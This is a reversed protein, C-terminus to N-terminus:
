WLRSNRPTCAAPLRTEAELDTDELRRRHEGGGSDLRPPSGPAPDFEDLFRIVGLLTNAFTSRAPRWEKQMCLRRRDDAGIWYLGLRPNMFVSPPCQPYAKEDGELVVHYINGSRSGRLYGEFGFRNNEVFPLFDPFASRMLEQEKQWRTETLM